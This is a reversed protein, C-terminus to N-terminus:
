DTLGLFVRDRHTSGLTAQIGAETLHRIVERVTTNRGYHAYIALIAKRRSNLRQIVKPRTSVPQPLAPAENAVTTGPGSCAPTDTTTM